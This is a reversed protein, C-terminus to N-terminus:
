IGKKYFSLVTSALCNFIKNAALARCRDLVPLFKESQFLPPHGGAVGIGWESRELSKWCDQTKMEKHPVVLSVGADLNYIDPTLHGARVHM